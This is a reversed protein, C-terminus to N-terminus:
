ILMKYITKLPIKNRNIDTYKWFQFLNPFGIRYITLYGSSNYYKNNKNTLVALFKVRIVM